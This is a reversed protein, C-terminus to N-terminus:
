VKEFDSALSSLLEERSANVSVARHGSRAMSKGAPQPGTTLRLTEDPYKVFWTMAMGILLGGLCNVLVTGIPFGHWSDNFWLSLRWRLVAGVAAGVAVALVHLASFSSGTLAAMLRRGGGTRQQRQVHGLAGARADDSVRADVWRAGAPTSEKKWFPAQTKLYDMLFECAQFAEGRHASSVAVLVIQDLPQLLGVRHIVRAGRIDFRQQAADVMAEIAKETMGPYHELEMASVGSRRRQPRAGHRRLQGGRRHRGDGARLAAVEEGVDFDATQIARAARPRRDAAGPLATTLRRDGAPFLGSRRRRRAAGIRRVDVQDLACRLAKGRALAAAHRRGRAILRDRLEGVTGGAASEVTEGAGLAERISAFYRVQVTM